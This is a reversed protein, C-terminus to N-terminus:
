PAPRQKHKGALCKCLSAVSRKCLNQHNRESNPLFPLHQSWSCRDLYKQILPLDYIHGDSESTSDSDPQICHERWKKIGREASTGVIILLKTLTHTHTHTHTM